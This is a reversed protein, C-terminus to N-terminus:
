DKELLKIIEEESMSTDAEIFKGEKIEIESMEIDRILKFDELLKKEKIQKLFLDGDENFIIFQTSPKIGANKRIDSPIVVQGNQSIKTIAVGM